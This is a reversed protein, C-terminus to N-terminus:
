RNVAQQQLLAQQRRDHEEQLAPKEQPATANAEKNQEAVAESVATFKLRHSALSM